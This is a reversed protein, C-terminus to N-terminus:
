KKERKFVILKPGNRQSRFQSPREKGGCLKLTDGELQYIGLLVKDKDNALTDMRKPKAAPDIRLTGAADGRPSQFAFRNGRVTLTVHARQVLRPRLSRGNEEVSVAVWTGQLRALEKRVADERPRDAAILLGAALFVLACKRM